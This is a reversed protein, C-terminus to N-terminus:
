YLLAAERGARYAECGPDALSMVADLDYGGGMVGDTVLRWDESALRIGPEGAMGQGGGILAAGLWWLAVAAARRAVTRFKGAATGPVGPTAECDCPSVPIQGKM